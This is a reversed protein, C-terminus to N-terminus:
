ENAGRVGRGDPFYPAYQWLYEAGKDANVESLRAVEAEAEAQNPVVAVIKILLALDSTHAEAWRDYRIVAYAETKPNM